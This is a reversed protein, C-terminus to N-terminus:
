GPSPLPLRRIGPLGDFDRDFTLIEDIGHRQMVALHLADRSSLASTRVIASTRRVDELEVPLVAHVADLLVRTCPEIADRRNIAVYRHIIEQLVEADTVLRDGGAVAHEVAATAM